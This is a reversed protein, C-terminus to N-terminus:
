QIELFIGASTLHISAQHLSITPFCPHQIHINGAYQILTQQALVVKSVCTYMIGIWKIKKPQEVTNEQLATRQSLLEYGLMEFIVTARGAHELSRLHPFLHNTIHVFTILALQAYM